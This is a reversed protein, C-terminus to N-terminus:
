APSSGALIVFVGLRFTILGSIFIVAIIMAMLDHPLHDGAPMMRDILRKLLPRFVFHCVALYAVLLGVQMAFGAGSFQATTLASVLALLTWGTVDDMAAATIAIAGLRTRTIGLEMMIRGLIPIATISLAVALFLRYGLANIDAALPAHSWTGVLWGFALPLAIGAASVSFVAARNQKEKLHSFDFELGIQFMLLSLGIQSLIVLPVPSISHFVFEFQNPFLKGFLSPGLILGGIIEGVVRPQGLLRALKGSLRAGALIAILEILTFSVLKETEHVSSAAALLNM